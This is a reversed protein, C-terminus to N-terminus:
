PSSTWGIGQTHSIVSFRAVNSSVMYGYTGDTFGGHYWGHYTFDSDTATLDLVEVTSFDSLLFRPVKGRYTSPVMYGYTGDTFSGYFYTLDSDTATLDLVEVTSFDSLLFRASKGAANNWPALYGYTGDTFGGNFDGDLDSDSATLDLVEVTSFDPLLFRAVKAQGFRRPSLYGYTGDTFGGYFDNLDSDTATLDLVSVSSFDSLSFRAVKGHFHPLMYGYTGETFGGFFGNLDGDTATLDLVLVTSFDSLLFRIVKGHYAPVVYGYTGDTFGGFFGLNCYGWVDQALAASFDLVEVTSFDSLVFRVVTCTGYSPVVYGYTGDTFGGIPLGVALDTFDLVSPLLEAFPPMTPPLVPPALPSPPPPAAPPLMGVFRKLAAFENELLEVKLKLEAHEDMMQAVTTSTGTIRVNSAEFEGSCTLRSNNQMVIIGDGFIPDPGFVLKPIATEPCCKDICFSGQAAVQGLTLLFLLLMKRGCVALSNGTQAVGKKVGQDFDIDNALLAGFETKDGGSSTDCEKAPAAFEKAALRAAAKKEGPKVENCKENGTLWATPKRDAEQMEDASGNTQDRIGFGFM